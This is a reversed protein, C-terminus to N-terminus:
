GAAQCSTEGTQGSNRTSAMTDIRMGGTNIPTAVLEIYRGSEAHGQYRIRESNQLVTRCFQPKGKQIGMLRIQQIWEGEAGSNLRRRSRFERTQGEKM